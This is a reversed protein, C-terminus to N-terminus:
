KFILLLGHYSYNGQAKLNGTAFSSPVASTSQAGIHTLELFPEPHSGAETV